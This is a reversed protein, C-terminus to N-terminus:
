PGRRVLKSAPGDKPAWIKKLLEFMVPDHERLEGRVFPYFDNRYFFAETSEAFYERANTMAYPRVTDGWHNMAQDYRGSAKAAEFAAEIQKNIAEPLRDHYGHALEHLVVAPQQLLSQRSILSEARPVHVSRALRPDYDNRRLWGASPHYCMRQTQPHLQEIWIPVQQLAVLADGEVLIRIRQLHNELMELAFRDDASQEQGLLAPDIHVTWGEVTQVVPDFFRPPSAERSQAEVRPAFFTLLGLLTLLALPPSPFRAM